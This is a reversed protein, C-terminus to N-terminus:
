YLGQMLKMEQLEGGSERERDKVYMKRDCISPNCLRGSVNGSEHFSVFIVKCFSGPFMIFKFLSHLCHQVKYHIKNVYFIVMKKEVAM